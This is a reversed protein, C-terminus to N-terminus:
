KTIRIEEPLTELPSSMGKEDQISVPAGNQYQTCDLKLSKNLKILGPALQQLVQIAVKAYDNSQGIALYGLNNYIKNYAKNFEIM